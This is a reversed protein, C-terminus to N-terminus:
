QEPDVESVLVHVDVVHLVGAQVHDLRATGMRGRNSSGNSFLRELKCSRCFHVSRLGGLRIRWPQRAPLFHGPSQPNDGMSGRAQLESICLGSVM